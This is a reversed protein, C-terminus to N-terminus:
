DRDLVRTRTFFTISNALQNSLKEDGISKAATYAKELSDQIEKEEPTLGMLKSPTTDTEIDDIDEDGDDELDIDVDEVDEEDKKAEYIEGTEEDVYEQNETGMPEGAANTVTQNYSDENIKLGKNMIYDVAYDILVSFNSNGSSKRVYDILESIFERLTTIPQNEFYNQIDTWAEVREDGNDDFYENIDMGEEDDFLDSLHSVEDLIAEKIKSKFESVKMKSPPVEEQIEQSETILQNKVEKQLLPNNKLYNIYDFSSM